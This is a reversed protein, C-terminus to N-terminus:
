DNNSIMFNEYEKWGNTKLYQMHRYCFFISSGSHGYMEIHPHQSIKYLIEYRDIDQYVEDWLKMDHIATYMGYVQDLTNKCTFLNEFRDIHFRNKCPNSMYEILEPFLHNKRYINYIHYVIDEPLQNLM